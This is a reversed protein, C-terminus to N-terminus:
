CMAMLKQAMESTIVVKLRLGAATVVAQQKNGFTKEGTIEIKVEAPPVFLVLQKLNGAVLFCRM